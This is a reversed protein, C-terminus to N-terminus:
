EKERVAIPGLLVREDLHRGDGAVVPLRGTDPHFLGVQLPYSGAPTEPLLTIPRTETVIRGPTWTVAADRSGWVHYEADLVQAFLVYPYRPEGTVQWYLTATLTEGAHLVRPELTYGVLAIEDAFNAFQPNPWAGPRPAIAVEGCPLSQDPAAAVGNQILPLRGWEAEYLGLRVRVRNPAYVSESLDVRYVDVFAAGSRWSTTPARGLGPWTDRQAVLVGAEDVLHVYVAYPRPTAQLPLWTVRVWVPEGPQVQAPSVEFALVRAADGFQVDLASDPAAAVRAPYSVAPLLYGGLAVLCLALMLGIVLGATVMPRHLWAEAGGVLLIAFAPLAPFLFRGMAGAPQILMYYLVVATFLGVAACLLLANPGPLRARRPRIYGALALLCAAAIGTYLASPLPIQGYGFRAWLSAWLYPLGQRIAWGNGEAPRGYWLENLKNMGTLDGYLLWNRVFWWGALLGAISLVVAMGRLWRRLRVALAGPTRSAEVALALAILAGAAALHFKALLACGYAVGLGALARRNAGTQLIGLCDFLVWTGCAAALIDNTIAASTYIFQPNFAVLAAAALALPPHAPWVRRGVGYALTVTLAGLLVNVWRPILAALFGEAFPLRESPGHWYQLKNDVGVAFNRYGWFPNTPHEYAATHPSSAAASCLASLLYYLPPHHSQSRVDEQGQVPLVREVVLKRIYRYHRLEDPAEFLPNLLSVAGALLLFALLLAVFPPSKFSQRIDVM